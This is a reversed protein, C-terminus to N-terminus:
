WSSKTNHLVYLYLQENKLLEIANFKDETGLVLNVGDIQAFKDPRLQAACGVVVIKGDPSNKKAKKTALKSKREAQATVTCTNIITVDAKEGYKVIEFGADAFQRAISASESFNLKCGLTTYAIKPV